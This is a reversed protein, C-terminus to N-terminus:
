LLIKETYPRHESIHYIYIDSRIYIIDSYIQRQPQGFGDGRPKGLRPYRMLGSSPNRWSAVNASSTRPGFLQQCWCCSADLGQVDSLCGSQGIMSHDHHCDRPTLVRHCAEAVVTELRQAAWARACSEAAAAGHCHCAQCLMWWALLAATMLPQAPLPPAAWSPALMSTSGRKPLGLLRRSRHSHWSRDADLAVAEDPM